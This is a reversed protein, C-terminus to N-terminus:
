DVIIGYVRSHYTADVKNWVQVVIYIYTAMKVKLM